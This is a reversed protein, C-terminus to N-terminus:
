GALVDSLYEAEALDTLLERRELDDVLDLSQDFSLFTDTNLRRVCNLIATIQDSSLPAGRRNQLSHNLAVVVAAFGESLSRCCFLEPLDAQFLSIENDAGLVDGENLLQRADAIRRENEQLLQRARNLLQNGPTVGHYLDDILAERAAPKESLTRVEAALRYNQQPTGGTRRLETLNIIDAM